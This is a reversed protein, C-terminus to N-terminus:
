RRLRSTITTKTTTTQITTTATTATTTMADRAATATRRTKVETQHAVLAPTCLPRSACAACRCCRTSPCRTPCSELRVRSRVWLPVPVRTRPAPPAHFVNLSRVSPDFVLVPCSPPPPPPLAECTNKCRAAANSSRWTDQSVRYSSRMHETSEPIGGHLVDKSAPRCPILSGLSPKM